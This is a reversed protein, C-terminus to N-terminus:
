GSGDGCDNHAGGPEYAFGVPHYWNSADTQIFHYSQGANLSLKPSAGTCGEVTYLGTESAFM